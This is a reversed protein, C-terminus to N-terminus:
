KQKLWVYGLYVGPFVVLIWLFNIYPQFINGFYLGLLLGFSITSLKLLSVQWWKFKVIKLM